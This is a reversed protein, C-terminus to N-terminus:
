RSTTKICTCVGGARAHTRAIKENRGGHESSSAFLLIYIPEHVFYLHCRRQKSVLRFWKPGIQQPNANALAPCIAREQEVGETAAEGLLCADATGKDSKRFAPIKIRRHFLKM